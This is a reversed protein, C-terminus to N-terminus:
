CHFCVTYLKSFFRPIAEGGCKAYSKELFINRVNYEILHGLKMTQSLIEIRSIITLIQIAITQKKSQPTM